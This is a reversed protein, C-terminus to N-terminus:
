SRAGLSSTARTNRERIASGRCSKFIAHMADPASQPTSTQKRLLWSCRWGFAIALLEAHSCAVQHLERAERRVQRDTTYFPLRRPRLVHWPSWNQGRTGRARVRAKVKLSHNHVKSIRRLVTRNWAKPICPPSLKGSLCCADRLGCSVVLTLGPRTAIAGNPSSPRRLSDSHARAFVGRSTSVFNCSPIM